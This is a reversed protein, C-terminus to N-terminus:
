AALLNDLTDGDVGDNPMRLREKGGDKDGYEPPSVEGEESDVEKGYLDNLDRM